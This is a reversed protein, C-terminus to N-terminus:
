TKIIVFFCQLLCKQVYIHTVNLNRIATDRSSKWPEEKEEPNRKYNLALVTKKKDSNPM